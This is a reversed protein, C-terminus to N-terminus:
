SLSSNDARQLCFFNDQILMTLYGLVGLQLMPTLGVKFLPVIPMLANYVWRGTGLGYWENIVAVGTGIILILWQKNKLFSLFLFPLAICTIVIADFLSARLLIYQTIEGGKYGTYLVAHLNEWIVNLVFALIFVVGVKKM